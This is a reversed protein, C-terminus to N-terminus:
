GNNLGDIPGLSTLPGISKLKQAAVEMGIRAGEAPTCNRIQASLFGGWFADGAGTADAIDPVPTAPLEAHSAGDNWSVRCGDPGRTLCVSEAGWDHLRHVGRVGQDTPGFLRRLDDDSVKVYSANGVVDKLISIAEDRDPWIRPAYNVDISRKAGGDKAIRFLSLITSRAPERSLAFATTHVIRADRLVEADVQSIDLHMDAHRYAIFESTGASRSLLVCSTPAHKTTRVFDTDVGAEDLERKLFDGLGDNGVSAIIATRCGALAATRVLNAPSGGQQREFTSTKELTGEPDAGILDVLLEGIAIVDFTPLNPEM